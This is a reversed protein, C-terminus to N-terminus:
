RVRTRRVTQESIYLLESIERDTKGEDSKLLSHARQIVAAKTKGKRVIALLRKREKPTLKVVHKKEM